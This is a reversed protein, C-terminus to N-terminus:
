SLSKSTMLGTNFIVYPCMKKKHLYIESGPIKQLETIDDQIRAISTRLMDTAIFYDEEDIESKLLVSQSIISVQYQNAGKNLDAYQAWAKLIDLLVKSILIHPITKVRSDFSFNLSYIPILTNKKKEIFESEIREREELTLKANGLKASYDYELLRLRDNTQTISLASKFDEYKIIDSLDNTRYVTDLVTSGIIDSTSFKIGSSYENQDIGDFEIKFEQNATVIKKQGVYVLGCVAGLLVAMILSVIVIVGRYRWLSLFLDSISIEDNYYDEHPRSQENTATELLPKKESM